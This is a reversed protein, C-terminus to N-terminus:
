ANLDANLERLRESFRYKINGLNEAKRIQELTYRYVSSMQQLTTESPEVGYIRQAYGPRMLFALQYLAIHPVVQNNLYMLGDFMTSMIADATTYTAKNQNWSHVLKIKSFGFSVWFFGAPRFKDVVYTIIDTRNSFTAANQALEPYTEFLDFDTYLDRLHVELYINVYADAGTMMPTDVFLQDPAAQIWEQKNLETTASSFPLYLKGYNQLYTMADVSSGRYMNPVRAGVQQFEKRIEEVSPANDLVISENIYRLGYNIALKSALLGLTSTFAEDTFSQVFTEGPLGEGTSHMWFKGIVRLVYVVQDPTLTSM